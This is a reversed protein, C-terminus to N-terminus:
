LYKSFIFKLFNFFIYTNYIEREKMGEKKNDYWEGTYSNGKLTVITKRFGSKQALYDNIKWNHVFGPTNTYQCTGTLNRHNGILLRRKIVKLFIIFFNLLFILFILFFSFDLLSTDLSYHVYLADMLKILVLDGFNVLELCYLLDFPLKTNYIIQYSM